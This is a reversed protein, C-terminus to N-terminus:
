RCLIYRAKGCLSILRLGERRDHGRFRMWYGTHPCDLGRRQGENLGTIVPDDAKASSSKLRIHDFGRAGRIKGNVRTVLIKWFFTNVSVTGAPGAPATAPKKNRTRSRRRHPKRNPIPVPRCPTEPGLRIENPGSM